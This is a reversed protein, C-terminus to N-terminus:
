SDSNEDDGWYEEFKEGAWYAGTILTAFFALVLLIKVGLYEMAWDQIFFTSILLLLTMGFIPVCVVTVASEVKNLDEKFSMTWDM